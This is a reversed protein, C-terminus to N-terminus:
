VTKILGGIQGAMAPDAAVDPHATRVHLDLHQMLEEKSESTFAGPCPAGTDACAFSYAM